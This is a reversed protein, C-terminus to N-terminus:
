APKQLKQLRKAVIVNHKIVNKRSTPAPSYDGPATLVTNKDILHLLYKAEERPTVPQLRQQLSWIVQRADSIEILIRLDHVPKCPLQVGPVIRVMTQHLSRLLEQQQQQRADKHLSIRYLVKVFFKEPLIYSLAILTAMATLIVYYILKLPLLYEKHNLQILLLNAEILLLGLFNLSFALVCLGFRAIDVLHTTRRLVERYIRIILVDWVLLYFYGSATEIRSPWGLRDLNLNTSGFLFIDFVVIIGIALSTIWFGKNRMIPRPRESKLMLKTATYFLFAGYQASGVAVIRQWLQLPQLMIVLVWINFCIVAPLLTRLVSMDSCHRKQYWKYVLFLLIGMLLVEGAIALLIPPQEVM